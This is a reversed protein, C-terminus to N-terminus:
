HKEFINYGIGITFIIYLLLQINDIRKAWTSVRKM